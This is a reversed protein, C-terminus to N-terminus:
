SRPRKSSDAPKAPTDPTVKSKGLSSLDCDLDNEDFNRIADIFSIMDTDEGNPAFFSIGKCTLKIRALFTRDEFASVMEKPMHWKATEGYGKWSAGLKGKMHEILEIEDKSEPKRDFKIRLDASVKDAAVTMDLKAQRPRLPAAM